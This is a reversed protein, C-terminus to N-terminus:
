NKLKTPFWNLRMLRYLLAPINIPLLSFVIYFLELAAQTNLFGLTSILTDFPKEFQTHLDSYM